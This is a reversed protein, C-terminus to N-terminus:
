FFYAFDRLVKGVMESRSNVNLKLYIRKTYTSVTSPQLGLEYAIRKNPMGQTILRAIELERPSLPPEYAESADSYCMVVIHFLRSNVCIEFRLKQTAENMDEVLVHSCQEVVDLLNQLAAELRDSDNAQTNHKAASQRYRVALQRQTDDTDIEEVVQFYNMM